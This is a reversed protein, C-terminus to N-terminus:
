VPRPLTPADDVQIRYAATTCAVVIILAIEPVSYGVSLMFLSMLAAALSAALFGGLGSATTLDAAEPTYEMGRIERKARHIGLQAYWRAASAISVVGIGSRQTHDDEGFDDFTLERIAEEEDEPPLECSGKEPTWTDVQILEDEDAPRYDSWTPPEPDLDYKMSERGYMKDMEEAAILGSRVRYAEITQPRAWGFNNVLGTDSMGAWAFHTVATARNVYPKYTDADIGDTLEVIRTTRRWVTMYCGVPRDLDGFVENFKEVAEVQRETKLPIARATSEVKGHWYEELVEETDRDEGDRNATQKAYKRCDGCDCDHYSPVQIVKRGADYWSPHYHSLTGPRMRGYGLMLHDFFCEVSKEEDAISASVELIREYESQPLVHDIAHGSRTM